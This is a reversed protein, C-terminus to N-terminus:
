SNMSRCTSFNQIRTGERCSLGTGMKPMTICKKADEPKRSGKVKMYLQGEKCFYLLPHLTFIEEPGEVTRSVAGPLCASPESSTPKPILGSSHGGHNAGLSNPCKKPASTNHMYCETPRFCHPKWTPESPFALHSIYFTLRLIM